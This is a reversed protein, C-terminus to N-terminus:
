RSSRGTAPRCSGTHDLPRGSRADLRIMVPSYRGGLAVTDRNPFAATTVSGAPGIEGVVRAMAGLGSWVRLCANPTDPHYLVVSRERDFSEALIRHRGPQHVLVVLQCMSLCMVLAFYWGNFPRRPSSFLRPRLVALSAFLFLLFLGVGVLPADLYELAVLDGPILHGFSFVVAAVVGTGVLVLGGVRRRRASRRM